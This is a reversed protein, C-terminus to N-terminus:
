RWSSPQPETSGKAVLLHSTVLSRVLPWIAMCIGKADSSILWGPPM